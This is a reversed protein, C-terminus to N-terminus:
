TKRAKTAKGELAPAKAATSRATAIARDSAAIAADAEALQKNLEDDTLEAFDGPKGSERRDIFMGLEKGLLALATNAASLNQQYEGTPVGKRDLVPEAAKAMRVNEMLEKIVWAKDLAAKEIARETAPGEIAKRLEDIRVMVNARKLLRNASQAAGNESFGCLIYAKLAKEGKAILQSFHEHKANKLVSM